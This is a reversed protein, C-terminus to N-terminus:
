QTTFIQPNSIRSATAPECPLSSFVGRPRLQEKRTDEAPTKLGVPGVKYRKCPTDISFAERPPTAGYGWLAVM